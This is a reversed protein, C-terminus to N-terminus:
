EDGKPLNEETVTIFRWPFFMSYLISFLLILYSPVAVEQLKYNIFMLSGVMAILAVFNYKVKM